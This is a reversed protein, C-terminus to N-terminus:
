RRQMRLPDNFQGFITLQPRDALPGRLAANIEAYVDSARSADRFYAHGARRCTVGCSAKRASM